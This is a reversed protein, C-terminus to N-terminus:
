KVKTMLVRRWSGPEEEVVRCRRRSNPSSHLLSVDPNVVTISITCVAAFASVFPASKTVFKIFPKM